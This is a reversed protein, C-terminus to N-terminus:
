LCYSIYHSNQKGFGFSFGIKVVLFIPKQLFNEGQLFGFIGQLIGFVLFLNRARTRAFNGKYFVLHLSIGQM